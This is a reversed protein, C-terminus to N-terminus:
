GPRKCAVRYAQPYGTKEKTQVVYKALDYDQEFLIGFNSNADTINLRIKPFGTLKKKQKM